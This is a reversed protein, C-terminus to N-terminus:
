RNSSVRRRMQKEELRKRKEELKRKNEEHIIDLTLEIDIMMIKGAHFIAPDLLGTKKLNYASSRSCQLVRALGEVGYEFRKPQIMETYLSKFEGITLDGIHKQDDFASNEMFNM